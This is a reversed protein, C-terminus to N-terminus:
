FPIDDNLDEAPESKPQSETGRGQLQVESVRMRIKAGQTGDRKEYTNLSCEGIVTVPTGKTLYQALKEGRQGFIACDIWQTEKKDGFGTDAAVVFGAVATGNQTYRVEADRGIRGAATAILM